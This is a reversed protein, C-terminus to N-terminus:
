RVDIRGADARVGGEEERLAALARVMRPDSLVANIRALARVSEGSAGFLRGLSEFPNREQPYFRFQVRENEEIGALARARAVATSFGGLHDVLGLDHAQRGTWVRGRAMDRVRAMDLSRGESVMTLFRDYM